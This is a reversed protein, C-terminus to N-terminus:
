RVPTRAGLLRLLLGGVVLLGVWGVAPFLFGVLQSFGFQSAVLALVTAGVVFQGYRPSEPKTLRIALGFLSAVATTYVEAWLVISYSTQLWPPFQRALHLMPVEYTASEPLGALVALNIFLAGLGLVFGGILGGYHLVRESKAERGLPGLVAISILLNYSVYLLASVPWFTTAAEDPRYWALDAPSIGSVLISGTSVVLVMVVLIPAVASISAVVGRLGMAVTGGALIAMVLTGLFRNLHWHEAFVAGSGAMMIAAGGFLFFTIVWDVLRGVTPGTVEEIVAVHSEARLRHGIRLVMSGLVGLLVTALLVGYVGNQGFHTFFTLIEQGTAFGAGVVTGVYTAAVTFVSLERRKM